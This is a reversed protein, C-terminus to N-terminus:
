QGQRQKGYLDIVENVQQGVDRVSFGAALSKPNAKKFLLEAAFVEGINAM